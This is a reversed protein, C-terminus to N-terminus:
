IKTIVKKRQDFQKQVDNMFHRIESYIQQNVSKNETEINNPIDKDETSNSLYDQIVKIYNYNSRELLEAAKENTYDTQNQIMKIMGDKRIKLYEDRQRKKKEEYIQKEMLYDEQYDNKYTEIGENNIDSKLQNYKEQFDTPSLKVFDEYVISRDELFKRIFTNYTVFNSKIITNEQTITNDDITTM